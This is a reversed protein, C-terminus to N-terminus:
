DEKDDGKRTLIRLFNMAYFWKGRAPNKGRGALFEQVVASGYKKSAVESLWRRIGDEEECGIELRQEDEKSFAPGKFVYRKRGDHPLSYDITYSTRKVLGGTVTISTTGGDRLSM